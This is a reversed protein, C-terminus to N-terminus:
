ENCDVDIQKYLLFETSLGLKTHQINHTRPPYREFKNEASPKKQILGKKKAV